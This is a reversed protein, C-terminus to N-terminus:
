SDQRGQFYSFAHICGCNNANNCSNQEDHHKKNKNLPALALNLQQAGHTWSRALEQTDGIWNALRDESVPNSNSVRREGTEHAKHAATRKCGAVTEENARGVSNVGKPHAKTDVDQQQVSLM